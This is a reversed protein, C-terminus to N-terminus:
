QHEGAQREGNQSDIQAHQLTLREAHQCVGQVGLFLREEPEPQGAEALQAPEVGALGGCGASIGIPGPSPSPPPPSLTALAPKEQGVTRCKRPSTETGSDSRVVHEGGRRDEPWPQCTKQHWPGPKPPGLDSSAIGAEQSRRHGTLLKQSGGSTPEFRSIAAGVGTAWVRGPRGTPIWHRLM